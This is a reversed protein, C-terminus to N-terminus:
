LEEDGYKNSKHKQLKNNDHVDFHSM